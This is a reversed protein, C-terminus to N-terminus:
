NKIDKCVAVNHQVTIGDCYEIQLLKKLFFLDLAKIKIYIYVNLPYKETFFLKVLAITKLHQPMLTMLTPMTQHPDTM